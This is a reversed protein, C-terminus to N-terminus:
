GKVVPLKANQWAALGGALNYTQTFGHRKLLACAKASRMGSQCNVVIAKEKWKQIEGIRGEIQALPIHRAQAIHGHAFEVDDRVDLVLADRNMIQVAESPSLDNSRRISQRVLMGGSVLAVVILWINNFVFEKM